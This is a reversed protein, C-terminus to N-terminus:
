RACVGRYSMCNEMFREMKREGQRRSVEQTIQDYRRSTAGSLADPNLTSLDAGFQVLAFVVDMAGEHFALHLPTYGTEIDCVDNNLIFNRLGRQLPTSFFQGLLNNPNDSSFFALEDIVDESTAQAIWDRHCITQSIHEQLRAERYSECDDDECFYAQPEGIFNYSVQAFVNFSVFSILLFLYKM